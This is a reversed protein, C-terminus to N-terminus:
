QLINIKALNKIKLTGTNLSDNDYFVRNVDIHFYATQLEAWTLAVTSYGDCAELIYSYDAPNETIYENILNELPIAQNETEGDSHLQTEQAKVEYKVFLDTEEPDNVTITRYVYLWRVNRIRYKGAMDCNYFADPAEPDSIDFYGNQIDSWESNNYATGHSSFSDAGFVVYSFCELFTSDDTYDLDAVFEQLEDYVSLVIESMRVSPVSVPSEEILRITDIVSFYTEWSENPLTIQYDPIEAIAPPDYVIPDDDSSCGVFLLGFILGIGFLIMLSKKM